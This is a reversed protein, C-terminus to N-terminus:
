WADVALRMDIYHAARELKLIAAEKWEDLLSKRAYILGLLGTAILLLAVPLLIMFAIRQQLSKIIM